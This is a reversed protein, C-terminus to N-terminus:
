LMNAVKGRHDVGVRLLKKHMENKLRMLQYKAKNDHNNDADKIKEEIVEIETKLEGIMENRLRFERSGKGIRRTVALFLFIPNLLLGARFLSGTIVATKIAKFLGSRAHPDALREKINDTCGVYPHGNNCKLIYVYQM